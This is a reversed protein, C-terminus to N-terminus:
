SMRFYRKLHARLTEISMRCNWLSLFTVADEGVDHLLCWTKALILLLSRTDDWDNDQFTDLTDMCFSTHLTAIGADLVQALRSPGHVELELCLVTAQLQSLMPATFSIM